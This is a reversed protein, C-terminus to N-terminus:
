HTEYGGSDSISSVRMLRTIGPENLSLAGNADRMVARKTEGGDRAYFM